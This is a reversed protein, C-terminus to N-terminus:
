HAFISYIIYFINFSSTELIYPAKVVQINTSVNRIAGYIGMCIALNMMIDIFLSAGLYIQMKEDCENINVMTVGIDCSNFIQPFM